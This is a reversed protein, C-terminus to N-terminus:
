EMARDTARGSARDRIVKGAYGLRTKSLEWGPKLEGVGFAHHFPWRVGEESRTLLLQCGGNEVYSLTDDAFSVWCYIILKLTVM